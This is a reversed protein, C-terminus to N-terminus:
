PTDGGGQLGEGGNELYEEDPEHGLGGTPQETFAAIRLCTFNKGIVVCVAILGDDRRSKNNKGWQCCMSM